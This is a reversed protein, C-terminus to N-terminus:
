RKRRFTKAIKKFNELYIDYFDTASGVLIFYGEGEEFLMVQYVLENKGDANKGFAVIEIGDLSDIDVTNVSRTTFSEGNPLKKLRDLAYQRKSEVPVKGLSSGAIFLADDATNTPVQGDTTYILSGALFKSFKFPTDTVDIRFPVAGLPDDIQTKNFSTSFLAKKIEAEDTGSDQPYIGNVLFTTSDDGFILMQKLYTLGHAPQSAKLFTAKSQNFDVTQREVLTMGKSKLAEDTFAEVITQVPAPMESVLISAGTEPNQFGSFQTAPAFGAPPALSLRTGPVAQHRDTQAFANFALTM